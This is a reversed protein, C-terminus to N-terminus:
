AGLDTDFLYRAVATTEPINPSAGRSLIVMGTLALLYGLHHELIHAEHTTLEEIQHVLTSVKATEDTRIYYELVQLVAANSFDKATIQM